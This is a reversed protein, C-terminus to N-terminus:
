RTIRFEDRQIKTLIAPILEACLWKRGDDSALERLEDQQTFEVSLLRLGRVSSGVAIHQERTVGNRIEKVLM